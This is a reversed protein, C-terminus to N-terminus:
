TFKIGKYYKKKRKKLDLKYSQRIYNILTAFAQAEEVAIDVGIVTGQWRPLGRVIKHRDYKPDAYLDSSGATCLKFMTDGSYIIFYNKSLKALSKVFFLGAGANTENGGIKPTAGSIGPTLALYIAEAFDAAHHSRRISSFIGRGSDAMGVAIRNTEAYYQACVFAGIQTDAHELVNRGLESFVYRIADAAAPSTHLLPVIDTLFKTLESSTKIQTLPIFRGAEEHEIIERPPKIGLHEFLKMRVLYPVSAVDAVAGQAPILKNKCTVGACAAMALAAPHVYIYRSHSSVDFTNGEPSYKKLFTDINQLRASNPFHIKM